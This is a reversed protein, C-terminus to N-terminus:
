SLADATGARHIGYQALGALFILTGIVLLKGGPTVRAWAGFCVCDRAPGLVLHMALFLLALLLSCQRTAAVFAM